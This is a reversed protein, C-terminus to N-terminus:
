MWNKRFLSNASTFTTASREKALKVRKTTILLVGNAAQSGYIAQASADKLIDISEIDNPNLTALFSNSTQGNEYIANNKTNSPFVVGDIVIIPDNANISTIGRVRVSVGGGPQGSNNTVTVGAVKGQIAQDIGTVPLDKLDKSKVSSIASSVDARKTTGYGIVVVESLKTDAVDLTAVINSVGDLSFEKSKAGVYSIVLTKATAPVTIKFVGNLDTAVSTKTGKINVTANALPAGSQDSVVGSVTKGQAFVALSSLVFVINIAVARLITSKEYLLYIKDFNFRNCM